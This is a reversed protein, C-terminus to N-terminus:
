SKRFKNIAGKQGARDLGSGLASKVKEVAKDSAENVIRRLDPLSERTVSQCHVEVIPANFNMGAGGVAISPLTESMFRNMMQPTAM